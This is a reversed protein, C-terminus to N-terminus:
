NDSDQLTTNNGNQLDSLKQLAQAAKMKLENCRRVINLKNDYEHVGIEALMLSIGRRMAESFKINHRKCLQYFDPSILVSTRIMPLAEM